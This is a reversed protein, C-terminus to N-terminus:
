RRPPAIGSEEALRKRRELEKLNQRALHIGRWEDDLSRTGTWSVQYVSDDIDKDLQDLTAAGERDVLWARIVARRRGIKREAVELKHGEFGLPHDHMGALSSSGYLDLDTQSPDSGQAGSALLFIPLVTFGTLIMCRIRELRKM